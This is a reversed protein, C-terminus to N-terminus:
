VVETWQCLHALKSSGFWLWSHRVSQTKDAEHMNEGSGDHVGVPSMPPFSRVQCRRKLSSAVSSAIYCGLGPSWPEGVRRVKGSVRCLTAPGSTDIDGRWNHEAVLGNPKVEKVALSPDKMIFVMGLWPTHVELWHGPSPVPVLMATWGATSKRNGEASEM